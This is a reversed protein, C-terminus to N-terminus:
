KKYSYQCCCVYQVFTQFSGLSFLDDKATHGFKFTDIISSNRAFSKSLVEDYVEPVNYEVESQRILM